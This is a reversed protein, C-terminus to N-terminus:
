ELDAFSNVIVQNTITWWIQGETKLLDFPVIQYNWKGLVLCSALMQQGRSVELWGVGPLGERAEILGLELCLKRHQEHFLRQVLGSKVLHRNIVVSGHSCEEIHWHLLLGGHSSRRVPDTSVTPWRYSEGM